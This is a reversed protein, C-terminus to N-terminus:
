QSFPSFQPKAPTDGPPNTLKTDCTIAGDAATVCNEPTVTTSPGVKGRNGPSLLFRQSQALAGPAALVLATSGLALLMSGILLRPSSASM